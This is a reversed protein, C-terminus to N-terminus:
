GEREVDFDQLYNEFLPALGDESLGFRDLQYEHRGFKGQPNDDLWAQMGGQAESTFDDGLWVYLKRMAGVPDRLMDSYHLDYIRSAGIKERAEMIREAHLAAQRPYNQGIWEDDAHGVHRLHSNAILSCLSGVATFPDRHTWVLRADPYTALLTDLWLAHSPMKLNWIGPAESQLVQLYRRHYAYASSMDTELLWAGYNPLKGHSEWFLSKFDHAMPFVDETPYIASSRYFKFAGPNEARMKAEAELQALARPDDYLHGAKPPPVPDNAEWALLSRRAPDAALLNSTLTTGTRPLGFVFVPREIPRELVAPHSSIWDAVRLRQSLYGLLTERVVQHAAESRELRSMDATLIGLGERFSDDDFSQLGTRARAADILEDPEYSYIM